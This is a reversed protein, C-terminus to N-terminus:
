KYDNKKINLFLHCNNLDKFVYRFDFSSNKKRSVGLIKYLAHKRSTIINYIM